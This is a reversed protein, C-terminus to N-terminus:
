RGVVLEDLSDAIQMLANLDLNRAQVSWFVGATDFWSLASSFQLSPDLGPPNDFPLYVGPNGRVTVKLPAGRVQGNARVSKTADIVTPHPVRFTSAIWIDPDHITQTSGAFRYSVGTDSIRGDSTEVAWAGLLDSGAPVFSPALVMARGKAFRALDEPTKFERYGPHDFPILEEDGVGEVVAPTAVVTVASPMNAFVFDGWREGDTVPQPTKSATQTM